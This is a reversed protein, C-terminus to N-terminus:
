HSFESARPLFSSLTLLIRLCRLVYARLIKRKDDANMMRERERERGLDWMGFCKIGRPQQLTWGNDGRIFKNM